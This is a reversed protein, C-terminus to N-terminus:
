QAPRDLIEEAVALPPQHIELVARGSGLWVETRGSAFRVERRPADRGAHVTYRIHCAGRRLAGWVAGASQETDPCVTHALSLMREYPDFALGLLGVNRHADAGSFAIVRRRELLSEWVRLARVPRALMFRWAGDTDFVARLLVLPLWFGTHRVAEANNHVEIGDFPAEWDHWGGYSLPHPVVAIGGAAHTAAIVSRGSRDPAAPLEPVDLVLLHGDDTGVEAGVLVLIRHGDDGTYIGAREFAPLPRPETGVDVHDTLVLFDLRQSMAAALLEEFPADSDHSPAHHVHIVGVLAAAILLHM